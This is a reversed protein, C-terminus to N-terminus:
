VVVADLAASAGEKATAFGLRSGCWDFEVYYKRMFVDGLIFPSGAPSGQFGLLCLSQEEQIITDAISLEFTKGGLSFGIKKTSSRAAECSMLYVGQQQTAGIAEMLPGITEPSGAILSTGSDVIAPQAGPSVSGGDLTVADLSVQWWTDATLPVYTFAGTYHDPDTGGIVLESNAVPTGGGSSHGLYFGFVSKSLQGSKVLAGMAPPLGSNLAGFAMGNIGDFEGKCYSQGLGTADTVEAFTFDKLTFAGIKVDDEQYFGSVPGSGYAIAFVSCNKEYTSSTAHNYVEKTNCGTKQAAKTPVWLTSSGTDYVVQFPQPPTGIEIPGYYSLDQFDNIPIKSPADSARLAADVLTLQQVGEEKTLLKSYKARLAQPAAAFAAVMHDFSYKRKALPIRHLKPKETGTGLKASSSPNCGYPITKLDSPADVPTTAKTTNKRAEALFAPYECIKGSCSAGSPCQSGSTCLLACYKGKGPISLGCAPQAEVGAPAPPCSGSSCPPTCVIGAGIKGGIEDPFACPPKGYYAPPPPAPCGTGPEVPPAPPAPAPTTSGGGGGGGCGHLSLSIAFGAVIVYLCQVLSAM